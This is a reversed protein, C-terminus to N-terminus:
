ELGNGASLHDPVRKCLNVEERPDPLSFWEIEAPNSEHDIKQM